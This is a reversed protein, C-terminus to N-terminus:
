GKVPSSGVDCYYFTEAGPATGGGIGYCPCGHQGALLLAFATAILASRLKM